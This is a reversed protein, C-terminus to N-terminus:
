LLLPLVTYLNGMHGQGQVCVAERDAVDGLLTACKNCSVFRHQCMMIVRLGCNVYPESKPNYMRHTQVFTQCTDM